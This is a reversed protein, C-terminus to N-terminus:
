CLLDYGTDGPRPSWPRRPSTRQIPHSCLNDDKWAAYGYCLAIPCNSDRYEVFYNCGETRLQAIDADREEISDYGRCCCSLQHIM